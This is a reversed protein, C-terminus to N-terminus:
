ARCARHAQYPRLGRPAGMIERIIYAQRAAALRQLPDTGRLAQLLDTVVLAPKERSAETKPKVARMPAAAPAAALGEMKALSPLTQIKAPAAPDISAWDMSARETPLPAAVLETVVPKKEKIIPAAKEVIRVIKRQPAPAAPASSRKREEAQRRAEALIEELTKPQNGGEDGYKYPGRQRRLPVRVNERETDVPKEPQGFLAKFLWVIIEILLEM